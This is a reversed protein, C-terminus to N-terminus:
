PADPARRGPVIERSFEQMLATLPEPMGREDGQGSGALAFLREVFEQWRLAPRMQIRLHAPQEGINRATHPTGAPAVVTDGPGATREVEGIEFRVSGAIVEWREEMAPHIHAPTQHDAQAWFDDMELLAGDTEEATRLFVIREGTVPNEVEKPPPSM